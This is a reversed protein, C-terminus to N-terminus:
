ARADSADARALMAEIEAMMKVLLDLDDGSLHLTLTGIERASLQDIVQFEREGKNSLTLLVERGDKTSRRKLILGKRTLKDITHSLYGEDVRLLKKVGRATSGPFHHLEYLLRAETLSYSSDLIHQNVVGILNTYFRNFSRIKRIADAKKM